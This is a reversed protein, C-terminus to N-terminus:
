IMLRSLIQDDSLVNAKVNAIKKKSVDYWVEGEQCEIGLHIVDVIGIFRFSVSDGFANEFEYEADKGIRMALKLAEKPGRSDFTIIREECTSFFCSQGDDYYFVLKASYRKLM